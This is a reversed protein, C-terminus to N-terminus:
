EALPQVATPNVEAEGPVRISAHFPDAQAVSFAAMGEPAVAVFRSATDHLDALAQM